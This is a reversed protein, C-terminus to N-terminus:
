YKINKIECYEITLQVLAQLISWFQEKSENNLSEYIGKLRFIESMIKSDNNTNDDLYNSEDYFYKEDKNFIEIKHPLLYKVSSQIAFLSNIKVIRKFYTYYTTGIVESLQKLFDEIIMNFSTIKESTSM